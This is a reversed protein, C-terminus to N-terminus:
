ADERSELDGRAAPFDVQPGHKATRPPWDVALLGFLRVANV